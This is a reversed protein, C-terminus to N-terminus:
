DRGRFYGVAFAVVLLGLVVLGVRIIIALGRLLLSSAVLAILVAIAILIAKHM